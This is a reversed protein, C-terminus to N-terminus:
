LNAEIWDAIAPFDKPDLHSDNMPYLATQAADDVGTAHVVAEPLLGDCESAVKGNVRYTLIEGGHYVPEWTGLNTIECLVGLCCHGEADKLHGKTQQYEGSRLAELWKKKVLANMKNM